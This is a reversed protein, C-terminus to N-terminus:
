NGLLTGSKYYRVLREKMALLLRKQLLSVRSQLLTNASTQLTIADLMGEEFKRKAMRYAVSDADAKLEMRVVEESYGNRDMVAQHIDTQLRRLTEDRDLEAIVKNNKAKRVNAIRSLNDFLPISLTASVYEGLNNSMQSGFSAAVAGDAFNRYYNTSIGASVSLTPLLNGKAISYLLSSNRVNLAAISAAPNIETASAFIDGADEGAGDGGRVHLATDLVLTDAVPYCMADKLTLMATHFLNRNHTLNYSDEAVQAEIQAVDPRGKMGVEEQTRTLRLTSNSEELKDQALAVCEKYYVADVFAQMVAMARDDREKQLESMGQRRAVKARKWQNITRGGDFIYMSAYLSYGNNFTTVTSYTNTEPDVGRGWSYQGGVSAGVSPLFDATATKCDEHLSALARQKKLVGTNHSMAYEMCRDMTWADTQAAAGGVLTMVMIAMMIERRM